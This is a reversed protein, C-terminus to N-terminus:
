HVMLLNIQFFSFPDCWNQIWLHIATYDINQDSHDYLFNQGEHAAWSEWGSPNSGAQPIMWLPYFGEEGITLLHNQDIGKVFAAMESVWSQLLDECGSCRPENILEWSLITPDNKYVRGNVTNVRNLLVSVHDKYMQKIDDDYFFTEHDTVNNWSNFQPIGGAPQWNDVFTLIPRVHHKRAEDLFYDLGRFMDENYEGPGTMLAYNLSVPHAWTRVANFGHKQAKQLLSRVMQPGTMNSPLSAGYLTLAGSSAEVAEWQNWGSVYFPRCEPGVVFRGGEIRVFYDMINEGPRAGAAFSGSSQLLMVLATGATIFIFAFTSMMKWGLHRNEPELLAYPAYRTATPRSRESSIYGM